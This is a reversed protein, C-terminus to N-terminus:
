FCRITRTPPNAIITVSFGNPVKTDFVKATKSGKQELKNSNSSPCSNTLYEYPKKQINEIISTAIRVAGAYRMNDRSKNVSNVYIATAIGVTLVIVTMAAAVDAGTLGKRNKLKKFINM